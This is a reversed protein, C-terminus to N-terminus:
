GLGDKNKQKKNKSIKLNHWKRGKVERQRYVVFSYRQKPNRSKSKICNMFKSRDALNGSWLRMKWLRQPKRLGNIGGGHGMKLENGVVQYIYRRTRGEDYDYYLMKLNNGNVWIRKNFHDM